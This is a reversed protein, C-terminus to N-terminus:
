IGGLRAFTRCNRWFHPSEQRSLGSSRGTPHFQLFSPNIFPRGIESVIYNLWRRLSKMLDSITLSWHTQFIWFRTLPTLNNPCGLEFRIALASPFPHKPTVIMQSAEDAVIMPCPM